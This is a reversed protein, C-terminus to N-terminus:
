VDAAAREIERLVDDGDFAHRDHRRSENHSRPSSLAELAERATRVCAIPQAGAFTSNIFNSELHAPLVGAADPDSERRARNVQDLMLRLPEPGCAVTTPVFATVGHQPLALAMRRVSGEGGLTDIGSVGHVHADIFGPVIYHDPTLTVDPSPAVDPRVDIIRDG